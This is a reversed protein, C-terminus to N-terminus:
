RFFYVFKFGCIMLLLDLFTLNNVKRNFKKLSIVLLSIIGGKKIEFHISYTDSFNLCPKIASGISIVVTNGACPCFIVKLYENSNDQIQFPFDHQCSTEFQGNAKLGPSRNRM